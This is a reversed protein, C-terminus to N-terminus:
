PDGVSDFQRVIDVVGDIVFTLDFLVDVIQAAMAEVVVAVTLLKQLVFHSLDELDCTCEVSHSCNVIVIMGSIILMETPEIHVRFNTHSDTLKESVSKSEHWFFIM